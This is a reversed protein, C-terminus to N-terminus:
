SVTKSAENGALHNQVAGLRAQERELQRNAFWHQAEKNFDLPMGKNIMGVALSALSTKALEAPLGGRLVASTLLPIKEYHKHSPTEHLIESKRIALDNSIELLGLYTRGDRLQTSLM